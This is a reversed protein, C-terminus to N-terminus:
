TRKKSSRRPGARKIQKDGKAGDAKALPLGLQARLDIGKGALEAELASLNFNWYKLKSKLKKPGYSKWVIGVLRSRSYILIPEKTEYAWDLYYLPRRRFASLPIDLERKTSM